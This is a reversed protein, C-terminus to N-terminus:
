YVNVSYPINWFFLYESSINSEYIVFTLNQPFGANPLVFDPIQTEVAIDYVVFSSFIIM